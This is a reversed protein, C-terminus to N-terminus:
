LSQLVYKAMQDGYAAAKEYWKKGEKKNRKVGIGKIYCYGVKSYAMAVEKANTASENQAARLYWFFAEQENRDVGYKGDEYMGGLVYQAKFDGLEAASKFLRVGEENNKDVGYGFLYNNGLVRQSAPHGKEAAMRFWRAAEAYDRFDYFYINGLSHQSDIHGQEAALKLWKLAEVYDKKVGELGYYYYNGVVNQALVSGAKAEQMWEDFTLKKQALAHTSMMVLLVVVIM